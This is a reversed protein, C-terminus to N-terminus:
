TIDPSLSALIQIIRCGTGYKIEKGYKMEQSCLISNEM